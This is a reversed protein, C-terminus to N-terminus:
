RLEDLDIGLLERMIELAERHDDDLAGEYARSEKLVHALDRMRELRARVEAWAMQRKRHEILKPRNLQLREITFKGVPTLGTVLGNSDLSVHKDLPERRPNWLQVAEPGDPWYDAKHQNCRICSCVLNDLDDTGGKSSPQFHDV